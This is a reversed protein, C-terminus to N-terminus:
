KESSNSVTRLVIFASLLSGIPFVVWGPHWLRFWFGLLLYLCVVVAWLMVLSSVMNLIRSPAGSHKRAISLPAVSSAFAAIVFVVWSPHWMNFLAGLVLYLATAGLWINAYVFAAAKAKPSTEHHIEGSSELEHLVVKPADKLLYDTSVGFIESLRVINSLDPMSEGLEWKSISQRSVFMQEALQEQSMGKQKRLASIKEKLEM